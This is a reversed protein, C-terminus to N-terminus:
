VEVETYCAVVFVPVPDTDARKGYKRWLTAGGCSCHIPTTQRIELCLGNALALVLRGADTTGLQRKCGWCHFPKM